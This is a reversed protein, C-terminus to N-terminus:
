EKRLILLILIGIIVAIVSLTSTTYLTTSSTSAAGEAAGKAGSTLDKITDLSVKIEGVTTEITATSGEIKTIKGDIEKLTATVNGLVTEIKALIEGKSGVILKSITANIDEVYAYVYGLMTDVTAVTSNISVVTANIDEVYAYVYGLTTNITAVTGKISVITAKIDTLNAKIEALNPIIITIIEDEINALLDGWANLTSSVQFSTMGSGYAKIYPNTYNAEVVLTYTGADTTVPLTYLIRYVGMAINEIDATLDLQQNGYYLTATITRVNVPMGILSTLIYFEATEGPFHISGVDLEVNLTEYGLTPIETLNFPSSWVDIVPGSVGAKNVIDYASIVLQYTTGLPADWPVVFEATWENTAPNFDAQDLMTEDVFDNGNFLKVRISGLDEATYYSGDWYQITFKMSAKEGHVYTPKPQQTIDIDYYLYLTGNIAHVPVYDPTDNALATQNDAVYFNLPIPEEFTETVNFTITTIIGEGEPFPGPYDGTDNPYLIDLVVVHSGYLPDDPEDFWTFLTYPPDPKQPFSPFFPGEIVNLIQLYTSNYLLRFQAGIVRLDASLGSVAVSVNFIRQTIIYTSPQITISPMPPPPQPGLFKYYGNTKITEIKSLNENLLYTDENNIDLNCTVTVNEPPVYIIELEIIALLGDGTVPDGVLISDGVLVSEVVGDGDNDYYAPAPQVTSQGTFIWNSDWTPLWAYTINLLTDNVDLRVQYAWLNSVNYLWVTANFRTGITATSTSYTFNLNGTSPNIVAIETGEEGYAYGIPTLKAITTLMVSLLLMTAIVTEKRKVSLRPNKVNEV